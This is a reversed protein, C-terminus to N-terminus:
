SVGLYLKGDDVKLAVSGISNDDSDTSFSYVGDPVEIGPECLPINVGGKTVAHSILLHGQTRQVSIAKLPANVPLQYTTGSESPSELEKWQSGMDSGIRVVHVESVDAKVPDVMCIEKVSGANYVVRVHDNMEHYFYFCGWVVVVIAVVDLLHKRM